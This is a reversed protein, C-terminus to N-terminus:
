GDAVMEMERPWVQRLDGCGDCMAYGEALCICIAEVCSCPDSPEVLYFRGTRCASCASGELSWRARGPVRAEMLTLQVATGDAHHRTSM